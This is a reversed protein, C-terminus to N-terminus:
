GARVAFWLATGAVMEALVIGVVLLIERSTKQMGEPM